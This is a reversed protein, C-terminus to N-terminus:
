TIGRITKSYKECFNDFCMIKVLCENCPCKVRLNNYIKNLHAIYLDPHNKYRIVIKGTVESCPNYIFLSNCISCPM